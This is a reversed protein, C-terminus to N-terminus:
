RTIITRPTIIANEITAGPPVTAGELVLSHRVIAERGVTSGQQLYVYPGITAGQGVSVRPDVRVPPAIRVTYPLESLLHGDLGEELIQRSLTLLDYDSEVQLTWATEGITARGDVELYHQVIDMFQQTFTTPSADNINALHNIFHEGCIAMDTIAYRNTNEDNREQSISKIQQGETFAYYTQTSKSLTARAGIIVLDQPYERQHQLLNPIFEPHTFSNYATLLYPKGVQKTIRSLISLLSENATKLVFNLNIKPMLGKNLYAAVPGENIGVVITYNEINARRLRDMVRTVLPKGVAPLMARPLVQTLQSRHATSGIALIVAHEIM